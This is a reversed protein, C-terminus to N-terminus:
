RWWAEMNKQSSLASQNLSCAPEQHDTQSCVTENRSDNLRPSSMLRRVTMTENSATKRHM